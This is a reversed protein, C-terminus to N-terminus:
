TDGIPRSCPIWLQDGSTMRDSPSASAALIIESTGMNGDYTLAPAENIWVATGFNVMQLFFCVFDGFVQLMIKFYKYIM